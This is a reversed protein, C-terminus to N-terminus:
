LLRCVLNERSQLESTHEESRSDVKSANIFKGQIIIVRQEEDDVVVADIQKDDKGDTIDDKAAVADRLVVRRLYWAVFREGDNSFNQPYYPNAKIEDQIQKLLEAGTIPVAQSVQPMLCERESLPPFPARNTDKRVTQRPWSMLSAGDWSM